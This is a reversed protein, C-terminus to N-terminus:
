IDAGSVPILGRRQSQGNALPRLSMDAINPSGELCDDGRPTGGPVPVQSVFQCPVLEYGGIALPQFGIAVNIFNVSPPLPEQPTVTLTATQQTAGSLIEPAM